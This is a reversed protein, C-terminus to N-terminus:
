LTLKIAQAGQEKLYTSLQTNNVPSTFIRQAPIDALIKLLLLANAPDFDTMFDDFLCVVASGGKALLQIQAIKMLLLILKQQGRSAYAKTKMDQFEIVIDDLHPGFLSRGFRREEKELSPHLKMFEAFSEGPKLRPKYAFSVMIRNNMYVQILDYVARSFQELFHMRITHITHTLQWLQETLIRYMENHFIGNEILANRQDVCHRITKLTSIFSPMAIMIAHDLFYRREQPSGQIILLDDETVSVVRFLSILDKYSSVIKQDVKVMRRDHSFGVQIEHKFTISEEVIRVTARIFFNKQNLRVLEKPSHTRFSRLYCSYYLAELLSTKGSGNDGEILVVPSEFTLTQEQFCRFNTLHLDVVQLLANAM